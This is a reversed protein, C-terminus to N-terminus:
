ASDFSLSLKVLRIQQLIATADEVSETVKLEQRLVDLKSSLLDVNAAYTTKIAQLNSIDSLQVGVLDENSTEKNFYKISQISNREQAIVCPSKGNHDEVTTSAGHLM